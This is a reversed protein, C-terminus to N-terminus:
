AQTARVRREGRGLSVAAAAIAVVVTAMLAHPMEGLVRYATWFSNRCLFLVLTDLVVRGLTIALLALVVRSRLLSPLPALCLGLAVGRVLMYKGINAAAIRAATTAHDGFTGATWDIHTFDLHTNVGIRQLYGLAFVFGAIAVVAAPRAANLGFTPHGDAYRGSAPSRDTSAEHVGADEPAGRALVAAAEGVAAALWFTLVLPVLELDRGIWTCAALWAMAAAARRGSRWLWMGFPPLCAALGLGVAGPVLPRAFTAASAIALMVVLPAVERRRRGTALFREVAFAGLLGMAVLRARLLSGAFLRDYFEGEFVGVRYLAIACGLALAARAFGLALTGSPERASPARLRRRLAPVFLAITTTVVIVYSEPKTYLTYTVAFAGLVLIGVEPSLRDITAAFRQPFVFIGLLALNAAVLLAIRVGNPWGDPLNEVTRTLAVSLALLAAALVLGPAIRGGRGVRTGRTSAPRALLWFFGGLLLAAALSTAVMMLGSAGSEAMQSGALSARIARSREAAAAIRAAPTGDPCRGDRPAAGLEAAAFRAIRALEECAIDARLEDPVALWDVLVHGEGNAPSAVGLLHAFTAALDLQDLHEVPHLGDVIGPGYAYLPSRRMIEGDSGHKGNDTAGHDSTVFVTWDSPLEALFDALLGDFGHIHTRYAASNVGHAHGQHDPSVFHAVFLNPRPNRRVMARAAAFIEDNYDVDIAVGEPDRHAFNWAAEPVLTFWAIDGTAATVLGAARANEVIHNFRTAQSTENEVIQDLDGPQGTAYALVAASTMSVPGSWIEANSHAKMAASFRPMLLPDNAIDFRLGDAIVLVLHQTLPPHGPAVPTVDAPPPKPLAVKVVGMVHLAALVVTAAVLVIARLIRM